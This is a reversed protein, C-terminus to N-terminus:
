FALSSAQHHMDTMTAKHDAPRKARGGGCAEETADAGLSQGDYELDITDDTSSNGNDKKKAMDLKKWLTYSTEWKKTDKLLLWCHSM